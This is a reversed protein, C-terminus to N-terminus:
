IRYNVEKFMNIVFSFSQNMLAFIMIIVFWILLMGIFSIFMNWIAKRTDFDHIVKVQAFLMFLVWAITLWQIGYYISAEEQTLVNSIITIPITVMIYPVLIFTSGAVIDIFKGEGDSITSVAWNTVSWTLWPIIVLAAQVIVSIDYSRLINFSFGTFMMSFIRTVIAVIIIIGALWLKRRGVFQIDYYFELPHKLSQRIMGWMMVM